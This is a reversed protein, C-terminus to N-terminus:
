KIWCLEYTSIDATDLTGLLVVTMFDFKFLFFGYNSILFLFISAGSYKASIGYKVHNKIWKKLAIGCLMINYNFSKM